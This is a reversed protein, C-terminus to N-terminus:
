TSLLLIKITFVDDIIAVFLHLELMKIFYSSLTISKVRFWDTKTVVNAMISDGSNDSRQFITLM